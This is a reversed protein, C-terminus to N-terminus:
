ASYEDTSGIRAIQYHADIYLLGCKAGVANYTDAANASDRFLRGILVSSLDNATSGPSIATFLTIYHKNATIDAESLHNGTAYVITSDGFVAGPEKFVYELGWRPTATTDAVAGIWHVHFQIDGGDWGHSMQLNFFVEKESGANADDFSYLFVGRSTGAADDYWKEFTPANAGTTRASPEILMDNWPKATGNFTLHGTADFAAYNTTGGDGLKSIGNAHLADGSGSIATAELAVGGQTAAKVGIGAGLASGYVGSGTVVSGAIATGDNETAQFGVYSSGGISVLKMFVDNNPKVEWYSSAGEVHEIGTDDARGKGGAWVLAGGPKIEVVGTFEGGRAYITGDFVLNSGDYTLRQAYDGQGGLAFYGGGTTDGGAVVHFWPLNSADTAIIESTEVLENQANIREFRGLYIAPGDSDGAQLVEDVFMRGTIHGGLATIIGTFAADGDDGIEAMTEAGSMIKLSQTVADWRLHGHDQHGAIFTGDNDMLIGAGDPTYLGLTGEAQDYALYNGGLNGAHFDGPAHQETTAFWVAFTNLGNNNYGQLAKASLIGRPGIDPDNGVIVRGEDIVQFDGRYPGTVALNTVTVVSQVPVFEGSIVPPQADTRKLNDSKM